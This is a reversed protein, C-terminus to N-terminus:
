AWMLLGGFFHHTFVVEGKWMIAEKGKFNNIDGRWDCVYVWDGDKFEKPGRPQFVNQKEGYSLAKKLFNFTERAFKEDNIYKPEMGGYYCQTWVPKEKYCVVEEGASRFFGAYSDRYYFDGDKYELEKFGTFRSVFDARSPDVKEGGGAYTALTAKGLFQNLQETTFEM